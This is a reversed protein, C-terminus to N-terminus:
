RGGAIPFVFSIRSYEPTSVRGAGDLNVKIDNLFIQTKRERIAEALLPYKRALAVMVEALNNGELEFEANGDTMSHFASQVEIKIAM